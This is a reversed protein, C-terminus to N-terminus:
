FSNKQLKKHLEPTAMLSASGYWETLEVISIVTKIAPDTHTLKEAEEITPVNFIYIGRYNRENKMFPGAIALKGEDAIRSINKMHGAFLSDKTAKDTINAPGTKLICFVYKKMGCEDAVLKKALISDYINKDKAQSFSLGSVLVSLILILNKM